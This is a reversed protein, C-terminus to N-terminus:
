SEGGGMYYDRIIKRTRASGPAGARTYPIWRIEIGAKKMEETHEKAAKTMAQTIKEPLRKANIMSWVAIQAICEELSKAKRRVQRCFLDDTMCQAKIYDAWDILIESLQLEDMEMDIKGVAAIQDDCLEPIEGDIYMEVFDDPIGNECAMNRLGDLDGANFLQEAKHNIEAASDFEGFKEYLAM